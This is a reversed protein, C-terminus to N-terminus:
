VNLSRQSLSVSILRFAIECYAEDPVTYPAIGSAAARDALGSAATFANTTVSVVLSTDKKGSGNASWVLPQPFHLYNEPVPNGNALYGSALSESSNLAPIVLDDSSIGYLGGQSPLMELRGIQFVDTGSLSISVSSNAWVKEVVSRNSGPLICAALGFIQVDANDRTTSPQLLNTNWVNAITGPAYGAPSMDSGQAYGFAKTVGGAFDFSYPGTGNKVTRIKATSFYPFSTIAMQDAMAQAIIAQRYPAPVAAAGQAISLATNFNQPSAM